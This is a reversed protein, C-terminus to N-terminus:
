FGATQLLNRIESVAAQKQALLCENSERISRAQKELSEMRQAFARATVDLKQLRKAVSDQLEHLDGIYDVSAAATQEPNKRETGLEDNGEEQNEQPIRRGRHQEVADDENFSSLKPDQPSRFSTARPRKKAAWTPGDSGGLFSSRILAQSKSGRSMNVNFKSSGFFNKRGLTGAAAAAATGVGKQQYRQSEGKEEVEVEESEAAEADPQQNADPAPSMKESLHQNRKPEQFRITHV